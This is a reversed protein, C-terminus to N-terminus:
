DTRTLRISIKVSNESVTLENVQGTFSVGRDLQDAIAGALNRPIYGLKRGGDKLMVAVANFDYPNDSERDLQILARIRLLGEAHSALGEYYHSGSIWIPFATIKIIDAQQASSINAKASRKDNTRSKSTKSRPRIPPNTDATIRPGCCVDCNGCAGNLTQSFYRLLQLRRCKSSKATNELERLKSLLSAKQDNSIPKEKIRYYSEIFDHSTGIAYASAASRDRGARGTEQYYREISDPIGFHAVFRVDPKDIGMGFAITAFIVSKTRMFQRETLVRTEPELGAHYFLTRYGLQSYEESLRETLDRTPCYVIGSQKPHLVLVQDLSSRRNGGISFEYYINHRDLNGVFVKARRLGLSAIIDRRTDATATATAAMVPVKPFNECFDGLRSYSPRFDHGWQSICHAEDVAIGAIPFGSILSRFSDSTAREPSVYIFKVNGSQIRKLNTAQETETQASNLTAAPIKRATLKKMQDNMLALLPSIVIGIGPRVYLPTQYCLTKGGGTPMVLLANGGNALHLMPLLQEDRISKHGFTNKVVRRIDTESFKM